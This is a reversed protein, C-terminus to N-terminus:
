CDYIQILSTPNNQLISENSKSLLNSHFYFFFLTIARKKLVTRQKKGGCYGLCPNSKKYRERKFVETDKRKEDAELEGVKTM